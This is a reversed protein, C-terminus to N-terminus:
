TRGKQENEGGEEDLEELRDQEELERARERGTKRYVGPKFALETLVLAAGLFAIIILINWPFPNPQSEGLIEITVFGSEPYYTNGSGEVVMIQCDVTGKWRQAPIIFSWTENTDNPAMPNTSINGLSPNVYTLYVVLGSGPSSPTVNVRVPIPEGAQATAPIGVDTFAPAASAGHALVAALVLLSFGAM